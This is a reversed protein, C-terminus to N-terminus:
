YWGYAYSHSLAGCSGGYRGNVYGRMWRVQTWVNTRWDAGASAMKSGPLAQPIGYAGTSPNTARPNWNSGEREILRRLCADVYPRRPVMRSRARAIHLLSYRRLWRHDRRLIARTHRDGAFPHTHLFRRLSNAHHLNRKGCHLERAPTQKDSCHAAMRGHATGGTIGALISYTIVIATV